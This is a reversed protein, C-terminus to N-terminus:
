AAADFVQRDLRSQQYEAPGDQVGPEAERRTDPPGTM